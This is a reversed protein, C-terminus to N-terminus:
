ASITSNASVNSKPELATHHAPELGTIRVILRTHTRCFFGRLRQTQSSKKLEFNNVHHNTLKAGCSHKLATDASSISGTVIQKMFCITTVLRRGPSPSVVKSRPSAPRKQSGNLCLHSSIIKGTRKHM